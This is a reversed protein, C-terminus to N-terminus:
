AGEKLSIGKTLERNTTTTTTSNITLSLPLSNSNETSSVKGVVVGKEPDKSSGVVGIGKDGGQSM